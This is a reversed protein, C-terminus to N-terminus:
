RAQVKGGQIFLWVILVVEGLFPMFCHDESLCLWPCYPVMASRAASSGPREFPITRLKPVKLRVEGAGTELNREYSCAGTDVWDPTREYRGAKCLEDAEAHLLKNLMEEVTERLVEGLERKV